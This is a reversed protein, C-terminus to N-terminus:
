IYMYIYVYMYADTRSPMGAHYMSSDAYEGVGAVAVGASPAYVYAIAEPNKNKKTPVHVAVPAFRGIRASNTCIRTTHTHTTHNHPTPTPTPTYM